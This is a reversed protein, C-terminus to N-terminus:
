SSAPRWCDQMMEQMISGYQKRSEISATSLSEVSAANEFKTLVEFRDKDIWAPGGSVRFLPVDYAMLILDKLTVNTARLGGPQMQRHPRDDDPNPPIRKISVVDFRAPSATLPPATTLAPVQPTLAPEAAMTAHAEVAVLLDSANRFAVVGLTIALSTAVPAILWRSRRRSAEEAEFAPSQDDRLRGRVRQWALLWGSRASTM